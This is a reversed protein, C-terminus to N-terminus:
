RIRPLDPIIPNDINASAMRKGDREDHAWGAVAVRRLDRSRSSRARINPIAIGV